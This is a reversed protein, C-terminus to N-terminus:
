VIARFPTVFRHRGHRQETFVSASRHTAIRPSERRDPPQRDALHTIVNEVNWGPCAPVLRASGAVL